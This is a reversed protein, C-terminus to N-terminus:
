PGGPNAMDDDFEAPADRPDGEGPMAVDHLQKLAHYGLFATVSILVFALVSLPVLEREFLFPQYSLFSVGGVLIPIYFFRPYLFAFAISLIDAPFFYREHMKPLFLPVLLMSVLTVELLVRGEIPRRSGVILVFFMFAAATGMIVGPTYLLNFVHKTDPLWAYASPANMTIFEFQSAQYAYVHLLEGLPRGAAWSPVTALFLISPIWLLSKWPVNGRIVLAALVPALFVAQLKFALAIGFLLMALGPRRLMLFYVCALLGATFLSDAQGWFASNLVVSPAFLVAMPALYSLVDRRSSDTRIILLVVYACLFDAVLSPLKVAVVVPLEPAFRAILYLLYLYPPNYTSFASAFAAFGGAKITSYWPKLSAYFDLSKFDLLSIRLALALSLGAVLVFADVLSIGRIRRLLETKLEALRRTASVSGPIKM